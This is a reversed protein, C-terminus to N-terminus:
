DNTKRKYIHVDLEEPQKLDNYEQKTLILSNTDSEYIYDGAQGSLTREAFKMVEVKIM